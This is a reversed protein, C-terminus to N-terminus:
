NLKIKIKIKLKRVVKKMEWNARGRLTRWKECRGAHMQAHETPMKPEIYACMELERESRIFDIATSSFKDVVEVLTKNWFIGFLKLILDFYSFDVDLDKEHKFGMESIQM